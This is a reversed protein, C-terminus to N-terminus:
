CDTIDWSAGNTESNWKHAGGSAHAAKGGIAAIERQREKNM